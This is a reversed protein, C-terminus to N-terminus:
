HNTSSRGTTSIRGSISTSCASATPVPQRSFGASPKALPRAGNPLAASVSRTRTPLLHRPKRPGPCTTGPWTAPSKTTLNDTPASTSRCPARPFPPRGPWPPRTSEGSRWPQSPRTAWITPASWRQDHGGPGGPRRCPLRCERPGRRVVPGRYSLRGLADRRTRSRSFSRDDQIERDETSCIHFLRGEPFSAFRDGKGARRLFHGGLPSLFTMTSPRAGPRM